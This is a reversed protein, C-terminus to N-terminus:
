KLVQRDGPLRDFMEPWVFFRQTSALAISVAGAERADAFFHIKGDPTKIYVRPKDEIYDIGVQFSM